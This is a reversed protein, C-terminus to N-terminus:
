NAPTEKRLPSQSLAAPSLLGPRSLSKKHAKSQASTKKNTRAFKGAGGRLQLHCRPCQSPSCMAALSSESSGSSRELRVWPTITRPWLGDAGRPTASGLSVPLPARHRSPVSASGPRPAVSGDLAM